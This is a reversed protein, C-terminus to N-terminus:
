PMLFNNECSFCKFIYNQHDFILKLPYCKQSCPSKFVFVATNIIYQCNEAYQDIFIFFDNRGLVVKEVTSICLVTQSRVCVPFRQM